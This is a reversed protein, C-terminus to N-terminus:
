EKYKYPTKGYKLKFKKIFYSCDCFGCQDSVLQVGFGQLLMIKAKKLKIDLIYESPSASLEKRFLRWLTAHSISFHQEIESVSATDYSSEIFSLISLLLKNKPADIRQKEFILDCLLALLKIIDALASINKTSPAGLKISNDIDSLYHYVVRQASESLTIRHSTCKERDFLAMIGAKDPFGDFAGPFIHLRYRDLAGHALDGGHAENPSVFFVDGGKFDYIRDGVKIRRKGSIFFSIEYYAQTHLRAFADEGQKNKPNVVEHYFQIKPADDTGFVTYCDRHPMRAGKRYM